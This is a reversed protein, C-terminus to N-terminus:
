VNAKAVCSVMKTSLYKIFIFPQIKFCYIWNSRWAFFGCKECNVFTKKLYQFFANTINEIKRLTQDLVSRSRDCIINTISIDSM